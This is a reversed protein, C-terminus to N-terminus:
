GIEMDQRHKETIPNQQVQRHGGEEHVKEKKEELRSLISEKKGTQGHFSEHQREKEENFLWNINYSATMLENLYCRDSQLSDRQKQLQQQLIEREQKLANLAPIRGGTAAKFYNVAEDYKDLEKDHGKRYMPKFLTRTYERHVSKNAYYQGAYHIKENIERIQAETSKVTNEASRVRDSVNAKEQSLEERSGFGHEQIYVVTRSLELLNTLEVERAYARSQQAKICTQLDTVLRLESRIYLIAIPNAHYNYAPDYRTPYSAAVAPAAYTPSKADSLYSYTHKDVAATEEEEKTFCQEKEKEREKELERQLAANKILEEIHEKEYDSGLTRGRIYKSRDPHLYSFRGRQEKVTIHYNERLLKRFDEISGAQTAIDLIADRLFQKQTQFTTKAPTLNGARIEENLEDLKEQGHQQTHYERDTVKSRSPSLLDIQHLGERECMHMVETMLFIRYSNTVHHKCGARSDSAREMFPQMEVDLKRVSNLIMHVHINGSENHGDAHTCVLVQHGPFCRAAFELGLEQAREPTLGCETSDHPDFSLIYHHSKIESPSQNKHFHKNVAVCAEPFSFADCNVGGIIFEKRMIKDGNKNRLVTGNRNHEFMVYELAKGYDANKSAIHKLIAM